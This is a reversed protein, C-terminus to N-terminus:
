SSFSAFFFTSKVPGAFAGVDESGKSNVSAQAFNRNSSLREFVFLIYNGSIAEPSTCGVAKRTVLKGQQGSVQEAISLEEDDPM